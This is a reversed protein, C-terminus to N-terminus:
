ALRVSGRRSPTLQQGGVDSARRVGVRAGVAVGSVGAVVVVPDGGATRRSAGRYVAAFGSGVDAIRGTRRGILGVCIRAGARYHGPVRCGAGGVVLHVM